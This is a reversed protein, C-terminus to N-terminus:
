TMAERLAARNESTARRRRAACRRCRRVPAGRLVPEALGLFKADLAADSLPREVSGTCHEVRLEHRAGDELTIAV